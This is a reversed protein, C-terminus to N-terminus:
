PPTPTHRAAKFNSSGTLGRPAHTADSVYAFLAAGLLASARGLRTM